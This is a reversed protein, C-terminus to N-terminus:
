PGIEFRDRTNQKHHLHNCMGLLCGGDVVVVGVTVHPSTFDFCIFSGFVVRADADDDTRGRSAIRGEESDSSASKHRTQVLINLM